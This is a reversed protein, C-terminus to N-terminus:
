PILSATRPWTKARTPKLLPPIWPMPLIPSSPLLKPSKVRLTATPENPPPNEPTFPPYPRPNPFPKRLHTSLRPTIHTSQTPERFRLTEYVSLRPHPPMLSRPPHTRNTHNSPLASAQSDATFSRVSPSIQASANLPPLPLSSPCSTLAPPLSPFILLTFPLPPHPIHATPSRFPSISATFYHPVSFM